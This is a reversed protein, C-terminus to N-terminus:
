IPSVRTLNSLFPSLKSLHPRLKSLRPSPKFRHSILKFRHSDAAMSSQFILLLVVNKVKKTKRVFFQLTKRFITM